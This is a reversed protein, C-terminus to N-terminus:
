NVRHLLPLIQDHLQVMNGSLILTATVVRFYEQDSSLLATATVNTMVPVTKATWVADPMM